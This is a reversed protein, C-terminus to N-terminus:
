AKGDSMFLKIKEEIVGSHREVAKPYILHPFKEDPFDKLSKRLGSMFGIRGDAGINIKTIGMKIAHQISRDPIGTGGHLVLPTDVLQ